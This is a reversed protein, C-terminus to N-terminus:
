SLKWKKYLDSISKDSINANVIDGLYKGLDVVNVFEEDDINISNSTIFKKVGAKKMKELPHIDGERQSLIPHTACIFVEEAGENKVLEAAAVITGGTDVMDDLIIVNKGKVDGLIYNAKAVNHETRTKDITAYPVGIRNAISKVRSAGGQDPSVLVLNKLKFEEAEKSIIELGRINDFPINFFGQIQTAHLDVATISTAGAKELLDAVLKATIPQRGKNKRDQRAYGYYTTFVNITRASSRKLADITILLEMLSENVPTSTSQFLYIDKNRVTTEIKVWIEGDAFNKITPEYYEAKSASAVSKALHKGQSLGMVISKNNM